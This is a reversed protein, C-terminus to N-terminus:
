MNSFGGNNMQIVVGAIGNLVSLVIAIIGMIKGAKAKGLYPELEPNTKAMGQVQSAFVVALIGLILGVCAVCAGPLACIGLVMAATAKGSGVPPAVMMQGGGAPAVAGPQQLQGGAAPGAPAEPAPVAGAAGPSLEPIQSVPLWDTMGENWALDGATVEGSAVKAKLEDLSVPGQQAGNKSYYWQMVSRVRGSEGCATVFSGSCSDVGFVWWKGWSDGGWRTM